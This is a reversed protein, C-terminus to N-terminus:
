KLVEKVEALLYKLFQDLAKLTADSLDNLTIETQIKSDSDNFVVEVRVKDKYISAKSVGVINKM